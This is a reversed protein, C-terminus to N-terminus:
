LDLIKSYLEPFIENDKMKGSLTFPIYVNNGQIYLNMKSIKVKLNKITVNKDKWFSCSINIKFKHYTFCDMVNSILINLFGSKWSIVDCEFILSSYKKLLYYLTQIKRFKQDTYSLKKNFKTKLHIEAVMNKLEGEMFPNQINNGKKKLHIYKLLFHSLCDSFRRIPSTFHSYLKDYSIMDHTRYEDTYGASINNIILQKYLDDTSNKYKHVFSSADCNRFIGRFNLLKSHYKFYEGVYMNAFIAFEEIMQKIQIERQSYQYIQINEESIYKLAFSNEIKIADKRSERMNKGIKIGIDFIDENSKSAQIYTYRNEPRIEVIYFQLSDESFNIPLFTDQNIETTISLTFKFDYEKNTILSSKELLDNPLMHIPMNNYGSPYYSMGREKIKQFLSNKENRITFYHTPDAIHITLFLKKNKYFISFGDDADQCGMPDVTYVKEFFNTRHIANLSKPYKTLITDEWYKIPYIINQNYSQEFNM